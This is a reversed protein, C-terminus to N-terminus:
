PVNTHNELPTGLDGILHPLYCSVPWYVLLPPSSCSSSWCSVPAHTNKSLSDSVAKMFAPCAGCALRSEGYLIDPVLLSCWFHGILAANEECILAAERQVWTVPTFIERASSREAGPEESVSQHELGHRNPSGWSVVCRGLLLVDLHQPFHLCAVYQHIKKLSAKLVDAEFLDRLLWRRLGSRMLFFTGTLVPSWPTNRFTSQFVATLRLELHPYVWRCPWTTKLHKRVGSELKIGKDGASM